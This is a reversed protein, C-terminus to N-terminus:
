ELSTLDADIAVVLRDSDAGVPRQPAEPAGLPGNTSISVTDQTAATAHTAEPGPSAALAALNGGIGCCLDAVLRAGAFRAAAHRATLESSAQELGVRTFLMQDAQSFKVRGAVRLEHQTLAAAVLDAPYEGRLSASLALTRAPTLETGALQGLLERGPASLM